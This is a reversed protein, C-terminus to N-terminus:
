IRERKKASTPVKGLKKVCPQHGSQASGIRRLHCLFPDQLLLQFSAATFLAFLLLFTHWFSHLCRCVHLLFMCFPPYIRRKNTKCNPRETLLDGHTLCVLIHTRAHVLYSLVQIIVGGARIFVRKKTNKADEQPMNRVIASM